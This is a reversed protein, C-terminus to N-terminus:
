TTTNKMRPGFGVILVRPSLVDSKKRSANTTADQESDYASDQVSFYSDVISAAITTSAFCLISALLIAFINM